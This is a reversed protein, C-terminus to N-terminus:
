GEIQKARAKWHDSREKDFKYRDIESEMKVHLVTYNEKGRHEKYLKIQGANKLAYPM